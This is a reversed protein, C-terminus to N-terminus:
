TVVIYDSFVDVLSVNIKYYVLFGSFVFFVIVLLLRSINVTIHRNLPYWILVSNYFKIMLM